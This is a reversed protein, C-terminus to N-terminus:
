CRPSTTATANASRPPPANACSPRGARSAPSCNSRRASKTATRTARSLRLRTRRRHGGRSARCQAAARHVAEKGHPAPKEAAACLRASPQREHGLRQLQRAGGRRRALRPLALERGVRARPRLVVVARASVRRHGAPRLARRGADGLARQFFQGHARARARQLRRHGDERFVGGGRPRRASRLAGCRRQVQRQGRARPLAPPRRLAGRRQECVLPSFRRGERHRPRPRSGERRGRARAGHRHDAASRAPEDRRLRRPKRGAPAFRHGWTGVGSQGRATELALRTLGPMVSQDGTAMVYEAAFAMDYGYYWSLYGSTTFDAAWQAERKM